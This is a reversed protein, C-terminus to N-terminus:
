ISFDRTNRLRGGSRSVMLRSGHLAQGTWGWLSHCKNCSSGSPRQLKAELGPEGRLRSTGRWVLSGGLFGVGARIQTGLIYFGRIDGTDVAFLHNGLLFAKPVTEETNM